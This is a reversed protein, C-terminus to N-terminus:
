RIQNMSQQMILLRLTFEGELLNLLSSSKAARQLYVISM